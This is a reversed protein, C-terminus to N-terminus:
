ARSSSRTTTRAAAQRAGQIRARPACQRVAVRLRRREGQARHALDDRAARRLRAPGRLQGLVRAHARARAARQSRGRQDRRRRARRFGPVRAGPRDTIRVITSWRSTPAIWRCCSARACSRKTSSACRRRGASRRVRGRERLLENRCAAAIIGPSPASMFRKPSTRTDLEALAAKFERPEAEAEAPDRYRVSARSARPRSAARATRRRSSRSRGDRKFSRTTSLCDGRPWRKWRGGFGSM